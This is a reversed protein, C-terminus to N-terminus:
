KAREQLSAAMNNLAKALDGIENKPDIALKQSFKGEWMRQFIEIATKFYNRM